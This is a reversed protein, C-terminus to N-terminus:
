QKATTEYNTYLSCSCQYILSPKSVNGHGLVGDDISCIEQHLEKCAKGMM